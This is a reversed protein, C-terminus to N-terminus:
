PQIVRGIFGVAAATAIMVTMCVLITGKPFREGSGVGSKAATPQGGGTARQILRIAATRLAGITM